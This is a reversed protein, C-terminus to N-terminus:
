ANGRHGVLREMEKILRGELAMLDTKLELRYKEQDERTVFGSQAEKTKDLARWMSGQQGHVFKIYGLVPTLVVGGVTCAAMVYDSTLSINM